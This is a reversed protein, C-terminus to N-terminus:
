QGGLGWEQSRREADLRTARASRGIEHGPNERRRQKRHQRRQRWRQIAAQLKESMAWGERAAIVGLRVGRSALLVVATTEGRLCM